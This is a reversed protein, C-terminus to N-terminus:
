ELMFGFVNRFHAAADRTIIVGSAGQICANTIEQPTTGHRLYHIPMSCCKGGYKAVNAQIGGRIWNILSNKSSPIYKTLTDNTMQFGISVGLQDAFHGALGSLSVKPNEGRYRKQIISIPYNLTAVVTAGLIGGEIWISLKSSNPDELKRKFDKSNRKLIEYAIPNSIFVTGTQMASLLKDVFDVQGSTGNLGRVTFQALLNGLTASIYTQGMAASFPDM